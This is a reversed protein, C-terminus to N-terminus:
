MHLFRKEPILEQRPLFHSFSVVPRRPLKGALEQQLDLPLSPNLADIMRALEESGNKLENPWKCMAYDSGLENAPPPERILKKGHPPQLEPEEDWSEHYWALLPVLWVGKMLAAETHVGIRKCMTRLNQIRDM